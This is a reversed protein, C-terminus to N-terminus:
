FADISWYFEGKNDQFLFDKLMDLLPKIEVKESQCKTSDDEVQKTVERVENNIHKM